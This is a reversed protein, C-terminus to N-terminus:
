TVIAQRGTAAFQTGGRQGDIWASFAPTVAILADVLDQQPDDQVTHERVIVPVGVAHRVTDLDAGGEARPSGPIRRGGHRRIRAEWGCGLGASRMGSGAEQRRESPSTGRQDQSGRLAIPGRPCGEGLSLEPYGGGLNPGRKLRSGGREPVGSGQIFDPDATWPAKEIWVVDRQYYM